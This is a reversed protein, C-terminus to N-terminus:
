PIDNLMPVSIKGDPRVVVDTTLAKDQERWFVVGLRDEVGIVYDAPLSVAQTPSAAASGIPAPAQAAALAPLMSLLLPTIASLAARKTMTLLATSSSLFPRLCESWRPAASRQM